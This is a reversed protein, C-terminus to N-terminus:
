AFKHMAVGFASQEREIADVVDTRLREFTKKHMRKPRDMLYVDEPDGLGLKRAARRSRRMATFHADGSENCSYYTLNYCHRCLFLDEGPPLYLKAVRRRCAQNNVISPCVFYPRNGGFTCPIWKLCINYSYNQVRYCDDTVTYSLTLNNVGASTRVSAGETAEDVGVISWRQTSCVGPRLAGQRLLVNVDLIYCIEVPIRM